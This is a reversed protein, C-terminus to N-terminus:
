VLGVEEKLSRDCCCGFFFFFGRLKFSWVRRDVMIRLGLAM